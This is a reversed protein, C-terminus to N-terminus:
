FDYPYGHSYIRFLITFEVVPALLQRISKTAVSMAKLENKVGM